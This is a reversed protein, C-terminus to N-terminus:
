WEKDYSFTVRRGDEQHLRDLENQWQVPLKSCLERSAIRDLQNPYLEQNSFNVIDMFDIIFMFFDDKGKNFTLARLQLHANVLLKNEQFQNKFLKALQDWTLTQCGIRRMTWHEYAKYAADDLYRAVIAVWSERPVQASLM